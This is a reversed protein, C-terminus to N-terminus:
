GVIPSMLLSVNFSIKKPDSSDITVNKDEIDGDNHGVLSLTLNIDDDYDSTKMVYVDYEGRHKM